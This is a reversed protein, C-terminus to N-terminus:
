RSSALKGPVSRVTKMGLGNDWRVMVTGVTRIEGLCQVTFFSRDQRIASARMTNTKAKFPPACTKSTGVNFLMVGFVPFSPEVTVFTVKLPVFKTDPRVVTTEDPLPIMILLTATVLEVLAEAVNVIAPFAGTPGWFTITVVAPPALLATVKVTLGGVGAAINLQLGNRGLTLWDTCNVSADVFEGVAQDHFKPSPAVLAAWFGACM